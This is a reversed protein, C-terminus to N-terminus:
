VVTRLLDRLESAGDHIDVIDADDEISQALARSLKMIRLWQVEDFGFPPPGIVDSIRAATDARRQEDMPDHVLKATADFLEEIAHYRTEGDDDAGASGRVEEFLTEVDSERDSPVLLDDGDWEFRIGLEDLLVDLQAREEPLWETLEYVTEGAAVGADDDDALSEADSSAPEDSPAADPAPVDVVAEPAPGPEEGVLPALLKQLVGAQGRIEDDLAEESGLAGLLRRTVRGVAAWTEDDAGPFGDSMFVGTSAEAVDGDADMDTPDRRLRVCAAYLMRIAEKTAPHGAVGDDLDAGELEAGEDAVGAGSEPGRGEAVEALLDDVRAEDEAAVILEDEEFRHLIESRNLEEILQGRGADDWDDLRYGVEDEEAGAALEPLESSTLREGCSHCRGRSGVEYGCNVCYWVRSM